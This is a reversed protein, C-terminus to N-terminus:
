ERVLERFDSETAFQITSGKASLREADRLNSSKGDAGVVGAVLEGVVVMTTEKSVRKRVAAGAIHAMDALDNKDISFNGTFVICQGVLPGDGDGERTVDRTSGRYGGRPRPASATAWEELGIGSEQMARLMIRGAVRADELADHHRLAFDFRTALNKLGFGGEDRLHPWVKRSVLCSDVWRCQFTEFGYRLSAQSIAIRDFSHHSLVHQGALIKSLRAHVAPFTMAGQVSSTDIGHIGTNIADFDEEPDVLVVDGAVEQDGDFVVVAIQCISGQRRNATEVDLAAFRMDPRMFGSFYAPMM